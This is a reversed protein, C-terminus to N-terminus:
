VNGCGLYRMCAHAIQRCLTCIASAQRFRLDSYMPLIAGVKRCTFRAFVIILVLLFTACFSRGNLGYFSEEDDSVTCFHAHDVRSAPECQVLRDEQCHCEDDGTVHEAGASTHQCWADGCQDGAAVDCSEAAACADSAFEDAAQDAAGAQCCSTDDCHQTALQRPEVHSDGDLPVCAEAAERIEQWAMVLVRQPPLTRDQMTQRKRREGGAARDKANSLDPPHQPPPVAAAFSGQREIASRRECHGPDAPQQQEAPSVTGVFTQHFAVQVYLLDYM